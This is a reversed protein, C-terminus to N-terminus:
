IINIYPIYMYITFLMSNQLTQFYLYFRCGLPTFRLGPFGGASALGAFFGFGFGSCHPEQCYHTKSPKPTGYKLVKKGLPVM